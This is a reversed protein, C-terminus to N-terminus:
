TWYFIAGPQLLELDDPAVADLPIEAEKESDNPDRLSRLTATFSDAGIKVVACEWPHSILQRSTRRREVGAAAALTPAPATQIMATPFLEQQVPPSTVLPGVVELPPVPRASSATEIPFPLPGAAAISARRTRPSSM